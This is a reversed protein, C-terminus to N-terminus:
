AALAARFIEAGWAAPAIDELLGRLVEPDAQRSIAESWGLTLRQLWAGVDADLSARTVPAFRSLVKTTELQHVVEIASSIDGELSDRLVLTRDVDLLLGLQSGIRGMHQKAAEIEDNGLEIHTEVLLASRYDGPLRLQYNCGPVWYPPPNFASIQLTEDDRTIGSFWLRPAFDSTVRLMHALKDPDRIVQSVGPLHMLEDLSFVGPTRARPALHEPYIDQLAQALALYEKRSAM